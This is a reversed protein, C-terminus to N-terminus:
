LAHAIQRDRDVLHHSLLADADSAPRLSEYCREKSRCHIGPASSRTVHYQPFLRATSGNKWRNEVPAMRMRMGISAMAAPADIERSRAAVAHCPDSAASRPSSKVPAAANVSQRVSAGPTRRLIVASSRGGGNAVRAALLPGRTTRRGAPACSL